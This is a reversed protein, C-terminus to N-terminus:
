AAQHEKQSDLVEIGHRVTSLVTAVQQELQYLVEKAYEDASGRRSRAEEEALHLIRQAKRQAEDAVEQARAKAEKLVEGEDLRSRRETEAAGKIKKAELLSQNLINERKQLVEQAEHVDRPVAIRLQDVLELLRDPDILSRGTGPLKRGSTALDELQEVLELIEM